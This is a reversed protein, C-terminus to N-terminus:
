SFRTLVSLYLIMFICSFSNEFTFVDMYGRGLDPSLVNVFAWSFGQHGMNTM